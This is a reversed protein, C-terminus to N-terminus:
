ENGNYRIAVKGLGKEFPGPVTGALAEWPLGLWM